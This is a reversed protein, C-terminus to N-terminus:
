IDTRDGVVIFGERVEYHGPRYKEFVRMLRSNRVKGAKVQRNTKDLYQKESRSIEAWQPSDKLFAWFDAWADAPSIISKM